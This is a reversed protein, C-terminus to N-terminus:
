ATTAAQTEQNARFQRVSQLEDPSLAERLPINQRGADVIKLRLAEPFRALAIREEPTINLADYEEKTLRTQFSGPPPPNIAREISNLIAPQSEQVQGPGRPGTPKNYITQGAPVAILMDAPVTITPGRREIVPPGSGPGGTMPSGVAVSVAGSKLLGEFSVQPPDGLARVKSAFKNPKCQALNTIFYTTEFDSPSIMENKMKEVSSYDSAGPGTRIQYRTRNPFRAEVVGRCNENGSCIIKAEDLSTYTGCNLPNTLDNACFPLFGSIGNSYQCEPTAEFGERSVKRAWIGLLIAAILIGLVLLLQQQKM